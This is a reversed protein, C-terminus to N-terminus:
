PERHLSVMYSDKSALKKEVERITAADAVDGMHSRILRNATEKRVLDGRLTDVDVRRGGEALLWCLMTEVLESEIAEPSPTADDYGQDDGQAERMLDDVAAREAEIAENETDDLRELDRRVEERAAKSETGALKEFYKRMDHRLLYRADVDRVAWKAHRRRMAAGRNKRRDNAELVRCLKKRAAERQMTDLRLGYEREAERLITATDWADDKAM